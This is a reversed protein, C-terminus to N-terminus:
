LFGCTRESEAIREAQWQDHKNVDRAVKRTAFLLGVPNNSATGFQQMGKGCCLNGSERHDGSLCVATRVDGHVALRKARRLNERPWRRDNIDRARLCGDGDSPPAIDCVNWLVAAVFRDGGESSFVALQGAPEM